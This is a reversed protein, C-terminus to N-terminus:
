STLFSLFSRVKQTDPDKSEIPFVQCQRVTDIMDAYARYNTILGMVTDPDARVDVVVSGSGSGGQRTQKQVREGAFLLAMDEEDLEPLSPQAPHVMISESSGSRFMTGDEAGPVSASDTIPMASVQLREPYSRGGDAAAFRPSQPADRGGVNDTGSSAFLLRQMGRQQEPDMGQRSKVSFAFAPPERVESAASKDISSPGRVGAARSRRAELVAFLSAKRQQFSTRSALAACSSGVFGLRNGRCELSPGREHGVALEAQM